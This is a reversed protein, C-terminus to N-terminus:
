MYLEIATVRIKLLNSKTYYFQVKGVCRLRSQFELRVSYVFVFVYTCKGHM